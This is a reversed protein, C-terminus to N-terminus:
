QVEADDLLRLIEEVLSYWVSHAPVLDGQKPAESSFVSPEFLAIKKLIPHPKLNLKGDCLTHIGVKKAIIAYIDLNPHERSLEGAQIAAEIIKSGHQVIKSRQNRSEQSHRRAESLEADLNEKLRSFEAASVEGDLRMLTLRRRKRELNEIHHELTTRLDDSALHSRTVAADLAEKLWEGVSRPIQIARIMDELERTITHQLVSQKSCGKAGSCHYYIYEATRGTTKYAKFKREGVIACGCRACRFVGSYPFRASFTRRPSSKGDLLEQALAFEGRTVMPEHNGPYLTGKYLIQGCYFPNRFINYFTSKSLPRDSGHRSHMTLGSAVSRRLVESIPLRQHLLMSWALQVIHFRDPDPDVNRTIPNNLYGLPAKNVYGGREVKGQMGRVVNRSLDQLYATSLGNEISLLLANDDPQYTRDATRIMALQRTQLMYALQGGDVPNRSLRNIAWTLICEAQGAYLMGVMRSFEPRAGPAKASKAETIVEIIELGDSAAIRTLASIQDELSQVQRDDSETSKRAYLITRM